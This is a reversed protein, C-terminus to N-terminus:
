TDRAGAFIEASTAGCARAATPARAMSTCFGCQLGHRESFAEQLPHLSDGTGALGEITLIESRDAQVAFMICSRTPEGDVMVTCAGCVGQECGLHTGTLGLGDRLWDALSQRVPVTGEIPAGNVVTRIPRIQKGEAGGSM